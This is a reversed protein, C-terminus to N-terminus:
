SAARRETIVRKWEDELPGYESGRIVDFGMGASDVDLIEVGYDFGDLVLDDDDGEYASAAEAYVQGLVCRCPSSLDFTVLDIRDAWGPSHEDLFATGAAVREAITSM